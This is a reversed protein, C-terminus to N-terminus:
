ESNVMLKKVIRYVGVNREAEVRIFYIGAENPLVLRSNRDSTQTQALVQGLTNIIESTATRFDQAIELHLTGISPNPYLSLELTNENRLPQTFSSKPM